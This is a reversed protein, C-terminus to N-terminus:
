KGETWKKPRERLFSNLDMPRGHVIEHRRQLELLYDEDGRYMDPSPASRTLSGIPGLYLLADALDELKLGGFVTEQVPM